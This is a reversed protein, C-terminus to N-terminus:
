LMAHLTNLRQRALCSCRAALHHQPRPSVFLAQVIEMVQVAFSDNTEISSSLPPEPVVLLRFCAIRHTM